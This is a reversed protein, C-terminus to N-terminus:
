GYIVLDKVIPTCLFEEKFPSQTSLGRFSLLSLYCQNYKDTSLNKKIKNDIGGYMIDIYQNRYHVYLHYGPLFPWPGQRGLEEVETKDCRVSHFTFIWNGWIRNELLIYKVKELARVLIYLKGKYVSLFGM